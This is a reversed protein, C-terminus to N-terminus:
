TQLLSNIENNGNFHFRNPYRYSRNKFNNFLGQIVNFVTPRQHNPLLIMWKFQSKRNIIFLRIPRKNYPKPKIKFTNEKLTNLIKLPDPLAKLNLKRVAKSRDYTLYIFDEEKVADLNPM